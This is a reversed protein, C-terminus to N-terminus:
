VLLEPLNGLSDGFSETQVGMCHLMTLLLNSLRAKDDVPQLCLSYFDRNNGLDYKGIVPLNYDIHQGHRLGLSRGGALVTPLNANGHNHGYSMGSGFLIMTRDLLSDDAEQQAELKNLFRALRQVLFIDCRTLRELKEAKGGHHTIEHRGQNIGIEPLSLGGGERDSMFTVVRTMDTQLALLILDYFSDYLEGAAALPINRTFQAARESDVKPKPTELWREARESRVEVERVADLYDDLKCRDESDISRRMRRAEGLVLDLISGQRQLRKRVDAVGGRREGFLREFALSPKGLAPLPVGARTWALSGASNATLELSSFRTEKGTLTAMLQDASESAKAASLWIRDCQHASGIGKPHHLGSIVTMNQRQEALPSLGASLQYDRGATEIQWSLTNVGNPIYVFVARKPRTTGPSGRRKSPLMCNLLPLAISAGLGRLLHRRNLLGRGSNINSM